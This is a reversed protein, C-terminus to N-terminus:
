HCIDYITICSVTLWNVNKIKRYFYCKKRPQINRKWLCQPLLHRWGFGFLQHNWCVQLHKQAAATIATSIWLICHIHSRSSHHHQVACHVAWLNLTLIMATHQQTILRRHQHIDPLPQCVAPTIAPGSENHSFCHQYLSVCWVCAVCKSCFLWSYVQHPISYKQSTWTFTDLDSKQLAQAPPSTTRKLSSSQCQICILAPEIIRLPFQTPNSMSTPNFDRHSEPASTFGCPLM